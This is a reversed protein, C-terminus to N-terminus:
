KFWTKINWAPDDANGLPLPDLPLLPSDSYRREKARTRQGRDLRDRRGGERGEVKDRTVAHDEQRKVRRIMVAILLM